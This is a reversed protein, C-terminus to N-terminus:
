CGEEAGDPKPKKSGILVQAPIAIPSLQQEPRKEM